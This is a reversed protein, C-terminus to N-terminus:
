KKSWSMVICTAIGLTFGVLMGLTIMRVTVYVIFDSLEKDTYTTVLRAIVRAQKITKQSLTHEMIIKGIHIAVEKYDVM